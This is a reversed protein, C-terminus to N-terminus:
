SKLWDRMRPPIGNPVAFAIEDATADLANVPRINRGCEKALRVFAAVNAVPLFVVEERTTEIGNDDLPVTKTVATNEYEARIAKHHRQLMEGDGNGTQSPIKASVVYHWEVVYSSACLSHVDEPLGWVHFAVTGGTEDLRIFRVNCALMEKVFASEDTRNSPVYFILQRADNCTVDAFTSIDTEIFRRTTRSIRGCLGERKSRHRMKWWAPNQVAASSVSM